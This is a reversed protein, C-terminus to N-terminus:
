DLTKITVTKMKNKKGNENRKDKKRRCFRLERVDKLFCLIIINVRSCPIMMMHWVYIINEVMVNVVM